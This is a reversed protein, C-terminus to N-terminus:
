ALQERTGQLPLKNEQAKFHGNEFKIYEMSMAKSREAAEGLERDVSNKMRSGSRTTVWLSYLNVTHLRKPHCPAVSGLLAEQSCIGLNTPKRSPMPGICEVLTIAM